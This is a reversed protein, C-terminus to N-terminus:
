GVAFFDLGFGDLTSGGSRQSWRATGGGGFM